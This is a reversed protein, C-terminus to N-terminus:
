KSRALDCRSVFLPPLSPLVFSSFLLSPFRLLNPFRRLFTYCRKFPLGVSLLLGFRPFRRTEKKKRGIIRGPLLFFPIEGGRGLIVRSRRIFRGTRLRRWTPLLARSKEGRRQSVLFPYIRSLFLLRNQAWM